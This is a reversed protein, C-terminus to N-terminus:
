AGTECRLPADPEWASGSFFSKQSENPSGGCPGDLSLRSKQSSNELAASELVPPPAPTPNNDPWCFFGLPMPVLAIFLPPPPVPFFSSSPHPSQHPQSSPNRIVSTSHNLQPTQSNPNPHTPTAHLHQKVAPKDIDPKFMSDM